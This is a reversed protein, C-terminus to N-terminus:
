LLTLAINVFRVEAQYVRGDEDCFWAIQDGVKIRPHSERMIVERM